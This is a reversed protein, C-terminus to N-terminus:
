IKWKKNSENLQEALEKTNTIVVKGGNNAKNTAKILLELNGRVGTLEKLVAKSMINEQEQQKARNYTTNLAQYNPTGKLMELAFKPNPQTKFLYNMVDSYRANDDATVVREGYTLWAPIKDKGREGTVFEEGEFFQQANNSLGSFLSLVLGTGAALTAVLAAVFAPAAVTTEATVKAIALIGQALALSYSSAQLLANLRIQRQVAKERQANLDDLTRRERELAEANGKDALSQAESVRRQQQAILADIKAIESQVIFDNVQKVTSALTQYSAIYEKLQNQAEDIPQKQGEFDPALTNSLRALEIQLEKIKAKYADINAQDTEAFLASTLAAIQRQAIAVETLTKQRADTIQELKLAEGSKIAAVEKLTSEKRIEALKNFYERENNTDIQWYLENVANVDGGAKQADKVAEQRAKESQLKQLDLQLRARDQQKEISAKSLADISAIQAQIQAEALDANFKALLEAKKQEFETIDKQLDLALRERTQQRITDLLALINAPIAGKLKEAIAKQREDIARLEAALEIANTQEITQITQESEKLKALAIKDANSAILKLLDDTIDAIAALRKQEAESIATTNENIKNAINATQAFRKDFVAVARNIVDVSLGIELAQKRFEASAKGLEEGKVIKEFNFQEGIKPDGTREVSEAIARELKAQFDLDDKNQNIINDSERIFDRILNKQADTVTGIATKSLRALAAPDLTLFATAFDSVSGALSETGTIEALENFETTAQNVTVILDKIVGITKSTLSIFNTLIGESGKGIELFLLSFEDKLNNIQGGLTASIAANSGAVGQVDGLSTIYQNIAESTNKVETTVGRFTFRTIEGAKQARIGFEKLRENEGVQADILAEALQNLDKGSASALDGLRRIDDITPVIGTNRLKVYSGIVEEVAFPTEAAFQAFTDILRKAEGNDGTLNTLVAEFKQFQATVSIVQQGISLLSAGAALGGLAKGIGGFSASLSGAQKETKKMETGVGATSQKLKLMEGNAKKLENQLIGKKAQSDTQNIASKLGDIRAQLLAGQKVSKELDTVVGSLRDDGALDFKLSAIVDLFEAM